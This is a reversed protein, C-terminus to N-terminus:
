GPRPKTNREVQRQRALELRKPETFLRRFLEVAFDQTNEADEKTLTGDHAGDKADDKICSALDHLDGTIRNNNFLWELRNHLWKRQTANPGGETGEPPLMGKTALDIALRFMASSANNCGVAMCTAGEKFAAAVNPPLHEPAEIAGHDKSSVFGTVELDSSVSAQQALIMETTEFAAGSEYANLELHFISGRRCERCECYFEFRVPWNNARTSRRGALMDFTIREADCRPCATVLLAM